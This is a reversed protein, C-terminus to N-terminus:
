RVSGEGAPVVSGAAIDRNIRGGVTEAGFELTGALDGTDVAFELRVRVKAPLVISSSYRESGPGECWHVIKGDFREKRHRAKPKNCNHCVIRM